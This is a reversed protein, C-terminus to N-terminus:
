KQHERQIRQTNNSPLNIASGFAKRFFLQSPLSVYCEPLQRSKNLFHFLFFFCYHDSSNSCSPQNFVGLLTPPHLATTSHPPQQKDSYEQPLFICINIYFKSGFLHPCLHSMGTSSNHSLAQPLPQGNGSVPHPLSPTQLSDPPNVWLYGTSHSCAGRM